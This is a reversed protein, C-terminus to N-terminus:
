SRAQKAVAMSGGGPVALCQHKTFKLRNEDSDGGGGSDAAEEIRYLCVEDNFNEGVLLFSTGDQTM